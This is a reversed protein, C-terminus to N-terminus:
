PQYPVGTSGPPVPQALFSVDAGLPFWVTNPTFPGTTLFSGFVINAATSDVNSVGASSGGTDVCINARDLVGQASEMSLILNSTLGSGANCSLASPPPEPVTFNVQYLGVFGPTLGAFRMGTQPASPVASPLVGQALYQAALGIQSVVPPAPAPTAAGTTVHGSVAGLGVVYLVLTEGPIAPVSTSVLSGNAHTVTPDCATSSTQGTLLDCGTLIHANIAVPDVLFSKSLTGSESVAMTTTFPAASEIVPSPVALEYPIQVTLATIVCDPTFAGPQQACQNFQQVSFM